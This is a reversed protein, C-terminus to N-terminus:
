DVKRIEICVRGDVGNGTTRVETGPVILQWERGIIEDRPWDRPANTGENLDDLLKTLHARLRSRYEREFARLEQVRRGLEALEQEGSSM